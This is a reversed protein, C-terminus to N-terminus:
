CMGSTGAIEDISFRRLWRPGGPTLRRPDNPLKIALGANQELAGAVRAHGGCERVYLPIQLVRLPPWEAGCRVQRFIAPGPSTLRIILAVALMVPFLPILLVAAM